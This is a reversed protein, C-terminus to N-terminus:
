RPGSDVKTPRVARVTEKAADISADLRRPEGVERRRATRTDPRAAAFAVRLVRAAGARPVHQALARGAAGVIPELHETRRARGNLETPWLEGDRASKERAVGNRGVDAGTFAKRADILDHANAVSGTLGHRRNRKAEMAAFRGNPDLAVRELISRHRVRISDGRDQTPAM